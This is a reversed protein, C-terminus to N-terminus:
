KKLRRGFANSAPGYSAEGNYPLRPGRARERPRPKLLLHHRGKLFMEGWEARYSGANKDLWGIFEENLDMLLKLSFEDFLDADRMEYKHAEFHVREKPSVPRMLGLRSGMGRSIVNWLEYPEVAQPRRSLVALYGYLSDAIAMQSESVLGAKKEPDDQTKRWVNDKFREVFDRGRRAAERALREEARPKSEHGVIEGEHEERPMEQRDAHALERNKTIIAMTLEDTPTFFQISELYKYMAFKGAESKLLARVHPPVGAYERFCESCKFLHGHWEGSTGEGSSIARAVKRLPVCGLREPNPFAASYYDAALTLIM